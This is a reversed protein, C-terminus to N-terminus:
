ERHRSAGGGGPEQTSPKGKEKEKGTGGKAKEKGTGGKEKEKGAGGGVECTQTKRPKKEGKGGGKTKSKAAGVERKKARAAGAKVKSTEGRQAAMFNRLGFFLRSNEGGLCYINHTPTRESM